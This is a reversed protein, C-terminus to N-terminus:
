EGKIGADRIVKGYRVAESRIFEAFREPTTTSPEIGAATLKERMEPANMAKVIEANLRTIADRPTGAPALMGYWIPVEFNEIGAERSTPVDPLTPQRKDSLVALARIKGANIQPAAIPAAMILMDTEGAILGIMAQGSGKYPVHVTRTKMLSNLLEAALHTTTGVGGSAYNLKGPNARAMKVLDSMTRAPVAPHVVLINQIVAVLSIPALDKVPDYNLKAYLSPSIAILPSSLVMTYGDPPAKSAVELGLNGGAGPRNDVTVPQGVQDTLRAAVTRGLLDTPGGPPFPLIMRLPKVPFNQALAQPVSTAALPAAALCLLAARSRRAPTSRYM